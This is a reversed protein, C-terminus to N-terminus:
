AAAPSREDSMLMKPVLESIRWRPRIGSRSEEGTKRQQEATKERKLGLNPSPNPNPNPNPHLTPTAQVGVSGVPVGSSAMAWIMNHYAEAKTLTLSDLVAPESTM